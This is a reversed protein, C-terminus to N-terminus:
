LCFKPDMGISVGPPQESLVFTVSVSRGSIIREFMSNPPTGLLNGFVKEERHSVKWGERLLRDEANGVLFQPTSDQVNLSGMLVAIKASSGCPPNSGVSKPSLVAMLWSTERQVEAWAARDGDQGQHWWRNLGVLSGGVLATVLAVVLTIRRVVVSMSTKM